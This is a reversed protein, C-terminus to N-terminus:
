EGKKAVSFSPRGPTTTIAPALVKTIEVSADRWKTLNIEPKWRFLTSLHSEMGAETALEQLLDGNVRHNLRAAIKIGAVTTSGEIAPDVHLTRLILDELGRRQEIAANEEAKAIIWQEILGEVPSM